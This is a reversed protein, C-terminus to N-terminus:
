QTVGSHCRGACCVVVSSSKSVAYLGRGSCCLFACKRGSTVLLAKCFCEAQKNDVDAYIM